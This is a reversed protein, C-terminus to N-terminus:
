NKPHSPRTLLFIAVLSLVGVQIWLVHDPVDLYLTIAVAVVMFIIASVKAGKSVVGHQNWNIILPGFTKHGLLWDYFTASGRAFCFAAVLIFPTTPLLPLFVGLAGLFVFLAGFINWITKIL